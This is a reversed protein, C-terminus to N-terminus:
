KSNTEDTLQQGSLDSTGVITHLPSYVNPTDSVDHRTAAPCCIDGQSNRVNALYCNM